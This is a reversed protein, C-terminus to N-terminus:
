KLLVLKKVSSYGGAQLRYFYVGSALQKHDATQQSNFQVSYKGAPKNENVLTAVENGLMDYVKLTVFSSHSIVFTINTTPNFPNPYNQELSFAEPANYGPKIYTAISGEVVQADQITIKGTTPENGPANVIVFTGSSTIFIFTFDGYGTDASASPPGQFIRLCQLSDGSPLILTGYGDIVTKRSVSDAATSVAINNVYTTDYNSYSYSWTKNYTLPFDFLVEGPIKVNVKYSTDSIPNIHGPGLMENGTFSLVNYVMPNAFITDNPFHNATIPINSGVGIYFKLNTFHLPRLDYINPGGTQGIDMTTDNSYLSNVSDGVVFISQVQNQSVTIQGFTYESQIIMIMAAFFYIIKKM